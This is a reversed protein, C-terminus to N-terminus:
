ASTKTIYPIALRGIYLRMDTEPHEVVGLWASQAVQETIGEVLTPSTGLEREGSLEHM